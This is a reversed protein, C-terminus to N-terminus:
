GAGSFSYESQDRAAHERLRGRGRAATADLEGSSGSVAARALSSADHAAASRVLVVGVDDAGTTLTQVPDHPRDRRREVPEERGDPHDPALVEGSFSGRDDCRVVDREEVRDHQHQGHRALRVEDALGLVHVGPRRARQERRQTQDRDLPGGRALGDSRELDGGVRQAAPV